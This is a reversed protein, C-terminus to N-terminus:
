HSWARSTSQSHLAAIVGHFKSKDDLPHSVRGALPSGARAPLSGPSPRPLSAPSAYARSRTPRPIEAEFVIGDRIGLTSFQRFAAVAERHSPRPPFRIRRPTRGRCARLPRGLLGPPGRREEFSAPGASLRHDTESADRTRLHMRPRTLVLEQMSTPWHRPSGSDRSVSALFDSPQMPANVGPFKNAVQVRDLM